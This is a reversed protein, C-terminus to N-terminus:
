LYAVVINVDATTTFGAFIGTGMVVDLVVTFPVFPTTTFTHNFVQTGTETLADYVILSGATPAADNCSITISHLVGPGGKVQGDAALVASKSYAGFVAQRGQLDFWGDVRDGDAVASPTTSEAKGGVKIPNGSDAADHAVDGAVAPNGVTRMQRSYSGDSEQHLDTGTSPM